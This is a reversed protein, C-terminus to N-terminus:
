AVKFQTLVCSSSFATEFQVAFFIHVLRFNHQMADSLYTDCTTRLLINHILHGTNLGIILLVQFQTFSPRGM